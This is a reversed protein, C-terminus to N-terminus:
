SAEFAYRCFFENEKEKRGKQDEPLIKEEEFLVIWTIHIKANSVAFIWIFNYCKIPHHKINASPKGDM